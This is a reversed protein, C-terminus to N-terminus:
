DLPLLRFKEGNNKESGRDAGKSASVVHSSGSIIVALWYWRDFSFKVRFFSYM